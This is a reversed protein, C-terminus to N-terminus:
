PKLNRTELQPVIHSDERQRSPAAHMTRHPDKAASLIVAVAPRSNTTQQKSNDRAVGIWPEGSADCMVGRSM